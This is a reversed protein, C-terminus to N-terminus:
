NKVISRIAAIVADLRKTVDATVLMIEDRRANAAELDVKLRANEQKLADVESTKASKEALASKSVRKSKASEAVPASAVTSAKAGRPQKAKSKKEM